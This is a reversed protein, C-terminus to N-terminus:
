RRKVVLKTRVVDIKHSDGDSTGIVQLVYSRKKVARRKRVIWVEHAESAKPGLQTTEFIGAAFAASFNLKQGGEEVVYFIQFHRRSGVGRLLITDQDSISGNQARIAYEGVPRTLPARITAIQGAGSANYVGVGKLGKKLPGISLDPQFNTAGPIFTVEDLYAKTNPSNGNPNSIRYFFAEFVRDFGPALNLEIKTWDNVGNVEEIIEGDVIMRLYGIGPDAETKYWFSFLGAEDPLEVYLRRAVSLEPATVMAADSGDRIVQTQRTWSNSYVGGPREVANALDPDASFPSIILNDVYGETLGEYEPTGGFGRTFEWKLTQTGPGLDITQEGLPQPNSINVASVNDILLRLRSGDSDEAAMGWHFKVSAPGEIQLQMTSKEGAVLPGSKAVTSNIAGDLPASTWDSSYIQYSFNEVAEQLPEKNPIPTVVLEDIWAQQAPGPVSNLRRYFWTLPQEGIDVEVNVQRWDPNGDANPAISRFDNRSSFQLADFSRTGNMKWWFSVTAPGQVTANLQSTSRNPLTSTIADVGDHTTGTTFAWEGAPYDTEDLLASGTTVSLLPAPNDLGDELTQAAAPLAALCSAFGLSFAAFRLFPRNSLCSM